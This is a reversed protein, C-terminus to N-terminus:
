IQESDHESMKYGKDEDMMELMIDAFRGDFQSGKGREIQERVKEQDMKPRYSRNSTMADYADAVAIIRAEEPIDGGALGDPYGGGDYREHHWRAGTVLYPMERINGLIKAGIVPHKKIEEYEENTLRGPKNIVADPIGIKGVDHLLGMMYIESLANDSYGARRAIERTYSAVRSSHGKTYQDKADIAEALTQVVELSKKLNRYDPIEVGIYFIYTGIAAGFYNLLIGKNQLFQLIITTIIVAYAGLATFFARRDFRSRYFIVLAMSLLLFYLEVVYGIAIRGANPIMVDAVGANIRMLAQFYLIVACVISGGVIVRNVTDLVGGGEMNKVFTRLYLFVYYTLFVNLVLASVQLGLKIADPAGLADSIRIINDAISIVNGILVIIILTQFKMNKDRQGYGLAMHLIFLVLEFVFGATGFSIRLLTQDSLVIQGM